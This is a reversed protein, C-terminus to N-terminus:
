QTYKVVRLKIEAIRFTGEGRTQYGWVSPVPVVWDAVSGLVTRDRFITLLQDVVAELAIDAKDQGETFPYHARVNFIYVERQSQPATQNYDAESESPSVIVAPYGDFQSRDTRYAVKVKDAQDEIVELIKTRISGFM